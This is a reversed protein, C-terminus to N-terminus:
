PKEIDPNRESIVKRNTYKEIEKSSLKKIHVHLRRMSGHPLSSSTSFTPATQPTEPDKKLNIEIEKSPLKEVRVYEYCKPMSPWNSSSVLPVPQSEDPDKSQSLKKTACQETQENPLKDKLVTNNSSDVPVIQSDRHDKCQNFNRENSQEIETSSLKQLSVPSSKTPMLLHSHLLAVAPTDYAESNTKRKSGSGNEKMQKGDDEIAFREELSQDMQLVCGKTYKKIDEASLKEVCVHPSFLSHLKVSFLCWKPINLKLPGRLRFLKRCNAEDVTLGVNEDLGELTKAPHLTTKPATDHEIEQYHEKTMKKNPQANTHKITRPDEVIKIRDQSKCLTNKDTLSVVQTIRMPAMPQVPSPQKEPVPNEPSTVLESTKRLGLRGVKDKTENEYLVSYVGNRFKQIIREGAIIVKCIVHHIKAGYNDKETEIEFQINTPADFSVRPMEFEEISVKRFRNCAAYSHIQKCTSLHTMYANLQAPYLKMGCHCLIHPGHRMLHQFFVSLPWFNQHCFNCFPAAHCLSSISSFHQFFAQPDPFAKQCHDCIIHDGNEENVALGEQLKKQFRQAAMTEQDKPPTYLVKQSMQVPPPTYRAPVAQRPLPPKQPFAPNPTEMTASRDSKAPMHTTPVSQHSAQINSPTVSSSQKGVSPTRVPRVTSMQNSVQISVPSGSNGQSKAQDGAKLLTVTSTIENGSLKTQIQLPTVPTSPGMAQPTIISTFQSEKPNTQENVPMITSKLLNGPVPMQGQLPKVVSTLQNGSLNTELVSQNNLLLTKRTLATMSNPLEVVTPGPAAQATPQTNNPMDTNMVNSEIPCIEIPKMMAEGLSSFVSAEPPKDSASPELNIPEIIKVPKKKEDNEQKIQVDSLITPTGKGSSHESKGSSEISLRSDRDMWSPDALLNPTPEGVLDKDLQSLVEQARQKAQRAQRSKSINVQKHQSSLNDMRRRKDATEPGTSTYVRKPPKGRIQAHPDSTTPRDKDCNLTIFYNNMNEINNTVQKRPQHSQASASPQMTIEKTGIRHQNMVVRADQTQKPDVGPALNSTNRQSNYYVLWNMMLAEREQPTLSQQVVGPPLRAFGPPLFQKMNTAGPPLLQQVVSEPVPQRLSEPVAQKPPLPQQILNSLVPHKTLTSQSLPQRPPGSQQVCGPPVSHGEPFSQQVLSSPVSQQPHCQRVPQRTASQPGSQRPPAPPPSVIQRAADPPVSEPTHRAPLGQRMPTAKQPCESTHLTSPLTTRHKKHGIEPPPVCFQQFKANDRSSCNAIINSVPSTSTSRGSCVTCSPLLHSGYAAATPCQNCCKPCRPQSATPSIVTNKQVPVSTVSGGSVASNPLVAFSRKGAKDTLLYLGLNTLNALNSPPLNSPTAGPQTISSLQTNSVTQTNVAPQTNSTSPNNLVAQSSLISEMNLVPQANVPIQKNLGPQSDPGPVRTTNLGPQTNLCPQANFSLQNNMSRQTSLVHQKLAILAESASQTNQNLNGACLTTAQDTSESVDLVQRQTTTSSTMPLDRVKAPKWAVGQSNKRELFDPFTETLLLTQSSETPKSLKTKATRKRATKKAPQSQGSDKTLVPNDQTADGGALQVNQTVSVSESTDIDMDTSQSKASSDAFNKNVIVNFRPVVRSRPASDSTKQTTESDDDSLLIPEKDDDDSLLVEGSQLQIVGLKGNDPQIVSLAKDLKDPAVQLASSPREVEDQETLDVTKEEDDLDICVPNKDTNRFKSTTLPRQRSLTSIVAVHGTIECDSANDPDENTVEMSLDAPISSPPEEARETSKETLDSTTLGDGSGKSSIEMSPAAVSSTGKTTEEDDSVCMVDNDEEDEKDSSDSNATIMFDEGELVVNEPENSSDDVM